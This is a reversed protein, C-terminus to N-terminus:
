RLNKRTKRGKGKRARKRSTRGRRRRGGVSVKTGSEAGSEVGSEAGSEDGFEVGSEAGPEDGPKAGSEGTAGSEVAGSEAGSEAADGSEAGSEGTAGSEAGSEVAGSEIAGSLGLDLGGPGSELAGSEAGSDLPGSNEINSTAPERIAAFTIPTNKDASVTDTDKDEPKKGDKCYDYFVGGILRRLETINSETVNHYAGFDDMFDDLHNIVYKQVQDMNEPNCGSRALVNVAAQMKGLRQRQQNYLSVIDKLLRKTNGRIVLRLKDATPDTETSASAGSSQGGRQRRRTVAMQDIKINKRNDLM